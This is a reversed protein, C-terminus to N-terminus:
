AADVNTRQAAQLAALDMGAEDAPLNTLLDCVQQVNGVGTFSPSSCNRSPSITPPHLQPFQLDPYLM